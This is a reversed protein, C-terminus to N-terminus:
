KNFGLIWDNMKNRGNRFVNMYKLNVRDFKSRLNMNFIETNQEVDTNAFRFNKNLPCITQKKIETNVFEKKVFKLKNLLAFKINGLNKASNYEKKSSPNMIEFQFDITEVFDLFAISAINILNYDMKIKQNLYDEKTSYVISATDLNNNIGILDFCIQQNNIEACQLEKKYQINMKRGNYGNKLTKVIFEDTFNNNQMFLRLAKM